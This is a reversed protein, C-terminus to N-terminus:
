RDPVDFGYPTVSALFFFDSEPKIGSFYLVTVIIWLSKFTLTLSCDGVSHHGTSM